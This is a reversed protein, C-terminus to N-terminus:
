PLSLETETKATDKKCIREFLEQFVFCFVPPHFLLPSFSDAVCLFIYCVEVNLLSFFIYIKVGKSELSVNYGSINNM